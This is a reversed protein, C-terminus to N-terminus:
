RRRTALERRKEVAARQEARDDARGRTWSDMVVRARSDTNAQEKGNNIHPRLNHSYALATNECMDEHRTRQGGECRERGANKVGRGEKTEVKRGERM